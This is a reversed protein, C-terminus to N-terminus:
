ARVAIIEGMQTKCLMTGNTIVYYAIFAFIFCGEGGLGLVFKCANM